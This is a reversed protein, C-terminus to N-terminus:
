LVNPDSFISICDGPVALKIKTMEVIDLSINPFIPNISEVLITYIIMTINGKVIKSFVTFVIFKLFLELRFFVIKFLKTYKKMNVKREIINNSYIKRPCMLAKYESTM